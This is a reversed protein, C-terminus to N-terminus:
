RAQLRKMLEGLPVTEQEGTALNKVETEGKALTAEKLIVAFRAAHQSAEGLLKGVNCTTRYTMRAHLGAARLEATFAEAIRAVEGSQSYYLILIRRGAHPHDTM